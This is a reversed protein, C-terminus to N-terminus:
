AGPADYRIHATFGGGCVGVDCGRADWPTGCLALRRARHSSPAQFHGAGSAPFAQAISRKSAIVLTPKMAPMATPLRRVPRACLLKPCPFSRSTEAGMVGMAGRMGGIVYVDRNSAEVGILRHTKNGTSPTHVTIGRARLYQRSLSVGDTALVLGIPRSPVTYSIYRSHLVINGLNIGM